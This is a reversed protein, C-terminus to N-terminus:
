SRAHDVGNALQVRAREPAIGHHEQDLGARHEGRDEEDAGQEAGVVLDGPEAAPDAGPEPEGHEEGVEGLRDGLSAALGLGVGQALRALVGLGLDEDPAIAGPDLLAGGAVEM